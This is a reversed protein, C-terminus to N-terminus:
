EEQSRHSPAEDDVWDPEEWTMGNRGPVKRTPGAKYSPCSLPGYCWTEVRYKAKTPNWQDITIEVAMRCGWICTGCKTDFTKAALRRHGRERYVELAPPPSHWPPPTDDNGGAPELTKLGSAKYFEATETRPNRVHAAAGKITDGVQFGHKAQAAKGIGVSFTRREADLEGEIALVYGLYSHHREGFSRHLRIRPQVSTITGKFTLKSPPSSPM